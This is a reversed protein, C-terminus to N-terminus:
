LNSTPEPHRSRTQQLIDLFHGEFLDVIRSWSLEESALRAKARLDADNWRMAAERTRQLFAAEDQL